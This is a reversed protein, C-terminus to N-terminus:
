TYLEIYTYICIYLTGVKGMKLEKGVTGSWVNMGAGTTCRMWCDCHSWVCADEHAQFRERVDIRVAVGVAMCEFLGGAM